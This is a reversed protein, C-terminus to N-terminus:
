IKVDLYLPSVTIKIDLSKRLLWCHSVDDVFVGWRSHRERSRARRRHVAQRQLAVPGQAFADGFTSGHELPRERQGLLHEHRVQSSAVDGRRNPTRGVDVEVRVAHGQLVGEGLDHRQLEDGRSEIFHDYGRGHVAIVEDGSARVRRDVKPGRLVRVGLHVVEQARHAGTEADAEPLRARADDMLDDQLVVGKRAAQHDPGVAVRRVGASQRHHGDPDTAAVGDVGHRPEGEVQSPWSEDAHSEGTLERPQDDGFSTIRRTASRKVTLPPVPAITSYKPGPAAVMLAVPLAVIQLMPASIPAVVDIKGKSAAVDDYRRAVNRASTASAASATASSRRASRAISASGPRNKSWTM